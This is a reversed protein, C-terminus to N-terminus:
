GLLVTHRWVGRAQQSSTITIDGTTHDTTWTFTPRALKQNIANYYAIVAPVLLFIGTAESHEADPSWIRITIGGTGLSVCM